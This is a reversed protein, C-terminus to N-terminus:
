QEIARAADYVSSTTLRIQAPAIINWTCSSSFRHKGDYLGRPPYRVEKITRAMEPLLEASSEAATTRATESVSPKTEQRTIQMCSLGLQFEGILVCIYSSYLQSGPRINTCVSKATSGSTSADYLPM